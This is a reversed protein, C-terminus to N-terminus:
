YSKRYTTRASENNLLELLDRRWEEDNATPEYECIFRQLPSARHEKVADICDEWTPLETLM